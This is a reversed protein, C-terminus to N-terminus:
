QAPRPFALAANGATLLGVAAVWVLAQVLLSAGLLTLVLRRRLPQDYRACCFYLALGAGASVLIYGLLFPMGAAAARWAVLGLGALAGAIVALELRKSRDVSIRLKM